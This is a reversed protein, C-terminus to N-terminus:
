GRAALAEAEARHCPKCVDIRSGAEVALDDVAVRDFCIACMVSGDPCVVGNHRQFCCLRVPSEM